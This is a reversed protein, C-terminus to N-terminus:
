QCEARGGNVKGSLRIEATVGGDKGAMAVLALILYSGSYKNKM